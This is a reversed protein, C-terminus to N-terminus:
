VDNPNIFSQGCGSIWRRNRARMAYECCKKPVRRKEKQAPLLFRSLALLSSHPHHDTNTYWAVV